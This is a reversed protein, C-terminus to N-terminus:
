YGYKVEGCVTCVKKGALGDIGAVFCAMSGVLGSDDAIGFGTVDNAILYLSTVIGGVIMILSKGIPQVLEFHNRVGGGPYAHSHGGGPYQVTWGEGGHMKPSYVWVGGDEAPWGRGPGNPNKVKGGKYKKPPVYSPHDPPVDPDIISIVVPVEEKKYRNDM